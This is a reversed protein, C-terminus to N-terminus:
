NLLLNELYGIKEAVSEKVGEWTAVAADHVVNYVNEAFKPGNMHEFLGGLLDVLVPGFPKKWLWGKLAGACYRCGAAVGARGIKDMAETMTSEGCAVDYLAEVGEVAVGAMDFITIDPIDVKEKIVAAKVAGAVVAKVEEPDNKLGDQLNEKIIGAIDVTESDQMKDKVVNAAVALGAFVVQKGIDYAKDKVSYENWEISSIDATGAESIQVKDIGWMLQINSAIFDNEVQQLKEGVADLPMDAYTEALREAFWEERSQGEDVAHDLEDLTKDYGAIAAIIDGALKEGAEKAMDPIEQRLKDALWDSFKISKDRNVYSDVFSSLISKLSAEETFKNNDM